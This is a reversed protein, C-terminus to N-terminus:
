RPGVIVMPGLPFAKDMRGQSPLWLSSVAGDLYLANPCDLADRFFRALKGFSVPAESIVFAATHAGCVGVGNRIYHSTGDAQFDPHLNGGIVLMPGSQTAWVPSPMATFYDDTTSVRPDGHVDIWFVGNPKMYFNGAGSGIEIARLEKGKEVHLGIPAGAADSMGANMAFSVGAPDIEQSLSTFSRFATGGASKWALSLEQTRADFTCAIFRANEFTHQECPGATQAPTECAALM